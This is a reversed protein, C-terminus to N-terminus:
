HWADVPRGRHTRTEIRCGSCDKGIGRCATVASRLPVAQTYAAQPSHTMILFDLRLLTYTVRKNRARGDNGRHNTRKRAQKTGCSSPFSNAMDNRCLANEKPSVNSNGIRSDGMSLKSLPFVRCQRPEAPFPSFGVETLSDESERTSTKQGQQPHTKQPMAPRDFRHSQFPSPADIARGMRHVCRRSSGPRAIGQRPQEGASGAETEGPLLSYLM